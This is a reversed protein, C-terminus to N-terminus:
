IEAASVSYVPPLNDALMGWSDGEDRSAFIKGTRPDFVAHNVERGMVFPGRLQWRKRDGSTFLFLGKKTGALLLIKKMPRHRM